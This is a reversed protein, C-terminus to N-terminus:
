VMSLSAFLLYARVADAKIAITRRHRMILALTYRHALLLEKPTTM